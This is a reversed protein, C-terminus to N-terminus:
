GRITGITVARVLTGTACSEEIASYIPLIVVGMGRFDRGRMADASSVLLAHATSATVMEGAKRGGFLWKDM